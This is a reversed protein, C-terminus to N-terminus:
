VENEETVSAVYCRMAAILPTPGIEERGQKNPVFSEAAWEDGRAWVSIAEREIIPGGQEWDTSPHYDFPVGKFVMLTSSGITVPNTYEIKAVALDLANGTLEM